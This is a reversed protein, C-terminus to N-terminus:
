GWTQAAYSPATLRNHYRFLVDRYRRDDASDGLVPSDNDMFTGFGFAHRHLVAHVDVGPVPEGAADVVEVVLDAKRHRDIRAMAEARWPADPEQGEYTLRTRALSDVDGDPGLNWLTVNAVEVTQPIVGLHFVLNVEGAAFDDQAVASFFRRSWTPGPAGDLKRLETWGRTGGGPREVGTADTGPAQLWATFQGGGSEKNSEGRVDFLGYLVDGRRIALSTTPSTLQTNWVPDTAAQVDVRAARSFKQGEADVVSLTARAAPGPGSMDEPRHAAIILDGEPRLNGFLSVDITGLDIPNGDIPTSEPEPAPPEVEPPPPPDDTPAGPTVGPDVKEVRVDAIEVTQVASGLHLAVTLEEAAYDRPVTVEFDYRQWEETPVIDTRRLARYQGGFEQLIVAVSPEDGGDAVDARLYVHGKLLDGTEVASRSTLTLVQSWWANATAKTVEARLAEEFPQDRVAVTSFSTTDAAGEQALPIM